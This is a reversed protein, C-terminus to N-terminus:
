LVGAVHPSAMSTGSNPVWLPSTPSNSAALINYGPAAVTPKPIGDVRPGRGSSSLINHSSESYAAVTIAMDATGPSSITRGSDVNSLFAFHSAMWDGDWAFADVWVPSGQQNYVTVTWVGSTWKHETTSIQIIINNLGRVNTDAFVYASLEDEDLAWSTHVIESFRGLDIDVGTPSTLIIKEDRDSSHWLLSLFSYDPPNNVNLTATGNTGTAALFRAHKSKDGLNGAATTTIVGYRLFAETVALDELDTGDLYGLYSSFSMNIIDAGNEIAFDIGDLIDSSELESKIIILDAGPAVGVYSTFGIQGGAITSAVHSGHGQSDTVSVGLTLNVDRVYVNSAAQDYLIAIKSINLLVADEVGLTIVNDHNADIGGLWRDGSIYSFGPIGDADIYMYDSSYSITNGTQGNVTRIPGENPDAISDNDLDVYYNGSDFITHYRGPSARWFSPHMWSVGTDIVAVTVGTGDVAVGDLEINNWVDDANITPVSSTIAPIYQKTGSTARVLGVDRLESLSEVSTVRASYIRGVNVISHGRRVFEIGHSEITRIQEGSLEDTFELLAKAGQPGSNHIEMKLRSGIMPNTDGSPTVIVRTAMSTPIFLVPALLIFLILYRRYM